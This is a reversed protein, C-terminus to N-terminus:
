FFGTDRHNNQIITVKASVSVGQKLGQVDHCLDQILTFPRLM